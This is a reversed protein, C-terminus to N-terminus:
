IMNAMTFIQTAELSLSGRPSTPPHHGVSQAMSNECPGKVWTTFYMQGDGVTHGQWWRTVQIKVSKVTTEILTKSTTKAQWTSEQWERRLSPTRGSLKVCPRQECSITSLYKNSIEKSWHVRATSRVPRRTAAKPDESTRNDSGTSAEWRKTFDWNRLKPSVHPRQGCSMASLERKFIVGSSHLPNVDTTQQCVNTRALHKWTKVSPPLTKGVGSHQFLVGIAHHIDNFQKAASARSPSMDSAKQLARALSKLKHRPSSDHTHEQRGARRTCWKYTRAQWNSKCSSSQKGGSSTMSDSTTIASHMLKGSFPVGETTDVTLHRRMTSTKGQRSKSAPAAQKINTIGNVTTRSICDQLTNLKRLPESSMATETHWQRKVRCPAVARHPKDVAIRLTVNGQCVALVNHNASHKGNETWGWGQM